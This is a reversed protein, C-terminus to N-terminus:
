RQHQGKGRKGGKPFGIPNGVANPNPARSNDEGAGKNAQPNFHQQGQSLQQGHPLNQQGQPPNNPRGKPFKKRDPAYPANGTPPRVRALDAKIHRKVEENEGSLYKAYDVTQDRRRAVRQARLCVEHDYSIAFAANEAVGLHLVISLFSLQAALGGFEKWANCLDGTLIFRLIYLMWAQLSVQQSPDRGKHAIGGRWFKAAREHSRLPVHWPKERLKPIVFPTYPPEKKSAEYFEKSFTNAM